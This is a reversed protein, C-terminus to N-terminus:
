KRSLMPCRRLANAAPSASLASPAPPTIGEKGLKDLVERVVREVVAEFDQM